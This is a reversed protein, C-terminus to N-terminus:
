VGSTNYIYVPGNSQACVLRNPGTAFAVLPPPPKVVTGESGGGTFSPRIDICVRADRELPELSACIYIYIYITLLRRFGLAALLVCNKHTAQM